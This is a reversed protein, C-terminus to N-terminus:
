PLKMLLNKMAKTMAMPYNEIDLVHFIFRDNSDKDIAWETIGKEDCSVQIQEFKYVVNDGVQNLTIIEGDKTVTKGMAHLFAATNWMNRYMQGHLSLLEQDKPNDLYRLWNPCNSKSLMCAFYNQMRDSLFPLIKDQRFRFYTGFELTQLESQPSLYEGFCPMWYVPCSLDFIASYAAPDLGVNYELERKGLQQKSGTGANLYIAVCKEAFLQPEIKGAIAIDRCSGVITIALPKVTEKLIDIVFQSGGQKTKHLNSEIEKKSFPNNSGIAVPVTLGTIFNMQGVAVVDPDGDKHDPPYDILIGKLDIEGTYALAYVCALDYHDDPDNHPRFLDTQHLLPIKM